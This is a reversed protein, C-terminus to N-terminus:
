NMTHLAFMQLILLNGAENLINQILRALLGVLVALISVVVILEILTFGKNRNQM